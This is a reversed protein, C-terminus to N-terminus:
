LSLRLIIKTKWLFGLLAMKKLERAFHVKFHIEDFLLYKIKQTEILQKAVQFLDIDPLVDVSLYFSDPIKAAIQKLLITKGSGRPGVIGIFHKGKDKLIEDFIFRRRPYKQAEELALLHLENLHALEM